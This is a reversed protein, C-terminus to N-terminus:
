RAPPDQYVDPVGDGDDDATDVAHVRAHHRSRARLAITALVAAVVSSTLVAVKASELLGPETEYALETILLAVTFGIGAIVGVAGVDRWGLEPTLSARTFRATLWAGALVGVPKGIVLGVLIGIAVPTALSEGLGVSRFDVGAAFFAFLPVCFGASIPHLRHSLQDAPAEREGPDVRVRTLFGFVVGAITAHIGSEHVFYWGALVLPVYLLPSTIRRRQAVAYVAFTALAAVFWGASFHDSYFIAIVTIAGLDDVVALTLLFARLAVPLRRGVVALVALAFAIDTAMPIGWGTTSGDAAISNVAFFIAAPVIMGGLAAAAPVVAQSVKSLSGLVLEHKLELGVVFFFVALLGDSAWVGLPLDLHLSIPGVQLGVLDAYSQGWPSNAWVLAIAAAILLLVGGVTEDQLQERLWAVNQRSPRQLFESGTTM